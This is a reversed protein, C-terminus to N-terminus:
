AIVSSVVALPANSNKIHSKKLKEKRRTSECFESCGDEDVLVDGDIQVSLHCRRWENWETDGSVISQTANHYCSRMVGLFVISVFYVPGVACM